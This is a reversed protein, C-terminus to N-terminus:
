ASPEDDYLADVYPYSKVVSGRVPSLRYGGAGPIIPTTPPAIGPDIM